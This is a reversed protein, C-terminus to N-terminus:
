ANSCARYVHRAIKIAEVTKVSFLGWPAHQLGNVTLGECYLTSTPTVIVAGTPRDFETDKIQEWIGPTYFPVVLELSNGNGYETTLGVMQAIVEGFKENPKTPTGSIVCEKHLDAEINLGAEIDISGPALPVFGDKPDVMAKRVVAIVIATGFRAWGYEAFLRGLIAEKESWPKKSQKDFGQDNAILVGALQAFSILGLQVRGGGVRKGTMDGLQGAVGNVRDDYRTKHIPQLIVM